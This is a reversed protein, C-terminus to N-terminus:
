GITLLTFVSPRFSLMFFYSDADILEKHPYAGHYRHMPVNIIIWNLHTDVAIPIGCMLLLGFM